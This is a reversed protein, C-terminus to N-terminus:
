PLASIEVSWGTENGFLDRAKVRFRHRQNARGVQVTYTRSSVWGSNFGSETTCEFFYEVVGSDDTAEAAMMVAYFDFSGPGLKVEKPEGGQAWQMPDPTPPTTDDTPTTVSAVESWDTELRNAKNRAKVRYRFQTLPTLDIDEWMPEQGPAFSLWGSNFTPHDFDEFFYEVGSSDTSVATTAVMAVSYPSIAYPPITWTMPNPIPPMAPPLPPQWDGALIAFDTFDVTRDRNLDEALLVENSLWKDTFLEMDNYDVRGNLNLDSASGANSLSMSAQATGGFAGLNIRQGHPWLEATWDSNPDGADIARSTVEDVTWIKSVPDWRGAESKLHYDGAVWVDDSEDATGKTDWFGNDAFLTDVAIDGPGVAAGNGFNGGENQWFNNYANDCPGFIGGASGAKNFAIINNRVFGRCYSLGGGSQGAINGVITNNLISGDCNYLGGGSLRAKNGAIINNSISGDCEHLAGGSLHAYNNTVKNGVIEGKCYNLGGGYGPETNVNNSIINNIIPGDCFAIGATNESITNDTIPGDCQYIAPQRNFSIMNKLITPAADSQGSIGWNDCNKIINKLITPSTGYCRIGRGTITFGTLVSDSGEGFDFTVSYGSSVAIITSQVVSPDDPDESAVTIARGNFFIKENYTGPRVVVTDGDVSANIADQINKFDAPGDDDVTIIQGQCTFVPLLCIF